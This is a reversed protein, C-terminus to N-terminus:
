ANDKMAIEIEKILEPIFTQDTMYEFEFHGTFMPNSLKVHVKIQGNEQLDFQMSFQDGIPNFVFSKWKREYIKQLCEKMNIFDFEEADLTTKAKFLEFDVSLQFVVRKFDEDFILKFNEFKLIELGNTNKLLIKKLM